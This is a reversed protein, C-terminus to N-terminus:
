LNYTSSLAPLPRLFINWKSDTHKCRLLGAMVFCCHINNGTSTARHSKKIRCYLSHPILRLTWRHQEMFSRTIASCTLLSLVEVAGWRVMLATSGAGKCCNKDHKDKASMGAQRGSLGERGHDYLENLCRRWAFVDFWHHCAGAQWCRIIASKLM